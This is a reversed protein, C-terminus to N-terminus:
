KKETREKEEEGKVARFIDKLVKRPERMLRKPLF